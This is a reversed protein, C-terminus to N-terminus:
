TGLRAVRPFCRYVHMGLVPIHSDAAGVTRGTVRAGEDRLALVILRVAPPKVAASM